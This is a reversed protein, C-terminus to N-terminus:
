LQINNDGLILKITWITQWLKDTYWDNNQTETDRCFINTEVIDKQGNKDSTQKGGVCYTWWVSYIPGDRDMFYTRKPWNKWILSINQVWLTLLYLFLTTTQRVNYREGETVNLDTTCTLFDIKTVVSTYQLFIYIIFLRGTDLLGNCNSTVEKLSNM